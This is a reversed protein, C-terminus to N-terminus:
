MKHVDEYINWTSKWLRYKLLKIDKNYGFTLPSFLIFAFTAIAVWFVFNVIQMRKSLYRRSYYDIFYALALVAFYLSPLYHHLYMVRGMFLFPLYHIFYGVILINIGKLKSIKDIRKRLRSAKSFSQIGNNDIAKIEPSTLTEIERMPSLTDSHYSSQPHTAPSDFFQKKAQPINEEDFQTTDINTLAQAQINKFTSSGPHIFSPDNSFQPTIYNTQSYNQEDPHEKKLSSIMEDGNSYILTVKNKNTRFSGINSTYSSTKRATSSACTDVGFNWLSNLMVFHPNTKLLSTKSTTSNKSNRKYVIYLLIAILPTFLCVLTSSWWVIPNGILYYKTDKAGWGNMRMPSTLFPWDLPESEIKNYKNRDPILNNNSKINMRTVLLTYKLLWKVYRINLLRFVSTAVWYKGKLHKQLSLTDKADKTVFKDLEKNKHGYVIWKTKPAGCKINEDCILRHQNRGWNKIVESKAVLICKRNVHYLCFHTRGPKIALKNLKSDTNSYIIKFVDDATEKSPPRYKSDKLLAQPNTLALEKSELTNTNHQIYHITKNFISSKLRILGGDHVYNDVKTINDTLPPLVIFHNNANRNRFLTIRQHLNNKPYIGKNANIMLMEPDSNYGALTINSGYAVESAQLDLENGSLGLQFDIPMRIAGTGTKYLLTFHFHFSILYIVLPVFILGIARAIFHNFLNKYTFDPKSLENFLESITFLGVMGISFLGVYKTSVVLGLSVGTLILWLWWKRSFPKGSVRFGTFSLLVMCTFLLLYSDLLIFRSIVCLANEFAVFLAGLFSAKRSMGLNKCIIYSFPVILMSYFAVQIRMLSYNVYPPYNGKFGFTGNHGAIHEALGILMKALPPHVDHYYTHNIYFAGFKGFHSEDWTVKGLKGIQYLRTFASLLFLFTFLLFDINQLLDKIKSSLPKSSTPRPRSRSLKEDVDTEICSDHYEKTPSQVKSNIVRQRMKSAFM